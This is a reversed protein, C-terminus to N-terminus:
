TIEGESGLLEEILQAELGEATVTPVVDAIALGQDEVPEAGSTDAPAPATAAAGDDAIAADETTGAAGEDAIAAEETTGAATGDGAAPAQRAQALASVAAGFNRYDGADFGSALRAQHATSHASNGPAPTPAGSSLHREAAASLNVEIAPGRGGAAAPTAAAAPGTPAQRGADAAAKPPTAHTVHM